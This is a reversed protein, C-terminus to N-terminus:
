SHECDCYNAFQEYFKEQIFLSTNIASGGAATAQQATNGKQATAQAACAEPM